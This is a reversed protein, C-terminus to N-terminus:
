RSRDQPEDAPEGDTDAAQRNNAERERRLQNLERLQWFGIGFVLLAIFIPEILAFAQSTM